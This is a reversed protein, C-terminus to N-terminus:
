SIRPPCIFSILLSSYSTFAITLSIPKKEGGQKTLSNYTPSNKPVMEKVTVVPTKKKEKSGPKAQTPRIVV